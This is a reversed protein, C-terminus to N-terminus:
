QQRICEQDLTRIIGVGPDDLQYRGSWTRVSFNPKTISTMPSTIKVGMDSAAVIYPSSKKSLATLFAIQTRRPTAIVM